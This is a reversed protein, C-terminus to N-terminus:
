LKANIPARELLEFVNGDPDRGYTAKNGSRPFQVPECHFTAGVSRLREYESEIDTVEVCFHTIGHDCVPRNPDSAEPRPQEFEFLEVQLGTEHSRLLAVRGGVNSLGLVREYQEGAFPAQIVLKMGFANQYFDVSRELNAVSIGVHNMAVLMCDGILQM